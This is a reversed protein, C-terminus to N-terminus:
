LIDSDKEIELIDEDDEIFYEYEEASLIYQKRILYYFVATLIGFLFGLAHSLYSVHELIVTPFFLIIMVASYRIFRKFIKDRREIFFSLTIYTAGMWYVVGSLGILTVQSPMTKLVIFNTLGGVLFGTIPFLLLEFHGILFYCFPIFLFVNNGLHAFDAHVFLTTWLRYYEQQEFVKDGSAEFFPALKFLNFSYIINILQIMVVLSITWLLARKNAKRTVM